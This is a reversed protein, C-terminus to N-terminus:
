EVAGMDRLEAMTGIYCQDARFWISGDGRIFVKFPNLETKIDIIRWPAPNACTIPHNEPVAHLALLEALQVTPM